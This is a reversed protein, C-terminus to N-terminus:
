LNLSKINNGPSRLFYLSSIIGLILSISVSLTRDALSILIANPYDLGELQFLYIISLEKIGYGGPVMSLITILRTMTIVRAVQLLTM